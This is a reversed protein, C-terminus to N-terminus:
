LRSDKILTVVIEAQDWKSKRPLDSARRHLLSDFDEDEDKIVNMGIVITESPSRSKYSCDARYPNGVSSKAVIYKSNSSTCFCLHPRSFQLM